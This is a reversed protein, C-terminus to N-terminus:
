AFDGGASAAGLPATQATATPGPRFPSALRGFAPFNAGARPEGAVDLSAFKLQVCLLAVLMLPMVPIGCMALLMGIQPSMFGYLAMRREGPSLDGRALLALAAIMVVTLDYNFAYPLVLFTATAVMLALARTTVGRRTAIIIVGVASAAAVLQAAVAMTMPAGLAVAATMPSTSIRTFLIDTHDIMDAQLRSVEFVYAYWPTWGYWLGTALVLLAVTAAGSALARWDGRLLLALPVLVALHPKILMLGFFIGARVPQTDLRQWGLLFLAGIVFGYHGAWANILAAPTAVALWHPGVGRPWWPRAAWAFLAGTGGLWAILALKYPLLAFMAALPFSVPPYSYNHSNITGFIGKQYAVYADYDYIVDIRGAAVLRGGTWVNIFDRGWVVCDAIVDGVMHQYDFIMLVICFAGGFVWPFWAPMGTAAGRTATAPARAPELTLPSSIM